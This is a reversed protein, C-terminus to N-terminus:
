CCCGVSFSLAMQMCPAADPNRPKNPQTTAYVVVAAFHMGTGTNCGFGGGSDVIQPIAEKCMTVKSVLAPLNSDNHVDARAM